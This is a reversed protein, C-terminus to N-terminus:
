ATSQGHEKLSKLCNQSFAYINPGCVQVQLEGSIKIVKLDPDWTHFINTYSIIYIYVNLCFPHTISVNVGRKSPLPLYNGIAM